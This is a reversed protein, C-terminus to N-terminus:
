CMGKEVKLERIEKRLEDCMSELEPVTFKEDEKGMRRLKEATGEGYTRDIYEAHLDERGDFTSNCLRCQEGCNQLNWRVANNGRKVFHGCDVDRWHHQDGCTICKVNGNADANRLRIYESFAADLKQIAKQRDTTKVRQQFRYYPKM